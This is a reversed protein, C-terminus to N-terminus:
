NFSELIVIESTDGHLKLYTVIEQAHERTDYFVPEDIRIDSTSFKSPKTLLKYCVEFNYNVHMKALYFKKQM